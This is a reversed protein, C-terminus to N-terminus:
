SSVMAKTDPEANSFHQLLMEELKALKPHNDGKDTVQALL